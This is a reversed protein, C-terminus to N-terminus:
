KVQEVVKIESIDLLIQNGHIDHFGITSDNLIRLDSTKYYYGSKLSLKVTKDKYFNLLKIYETNNIM